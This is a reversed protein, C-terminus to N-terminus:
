RQTTWNLNTTPTYGDPLKFLSPDPEGRKIEKLEYTSMGFRPDDDISEVLVQLDDSYWRERFVHIDNKKDLAPITFTVRTGKCVLGNIILTGLDVTDVHNTPIFDGPYWGWSDQLVVPWTLSPDDHHISAIYGGDGIVAIATPFTRERSAYIAQSEKYDKEQLHLTYTKNITPDFILLIKSGEIRMRGKADRYIENTDLYDHHSRNSTLHPSHRVEIASFPKNLVPGEQGDPPIMYSTTIADWNTSDVWFPKKVPAATHDAQALLPSTLLPAALLALFFPRM